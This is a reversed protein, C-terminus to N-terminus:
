YKSANGGNKVELLHALKCGKRRSLGTLRKVDRLYEKLTHKKNYSYIHWCM